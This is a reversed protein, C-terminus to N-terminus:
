ALGMDKAWEISADIKDPALGGMGFHNSICKLGADEITKKIEAPPLDKMFGYGISAYDAPYCMETYTYGMDAMGKLTGSLDKGMRDRIPFTQFGVPMNAARAAELIGPIQSLALAGGLGVVSKGLFTRRSINKM